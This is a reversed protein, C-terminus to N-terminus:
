LTLPLSNLKSHAQIASALLVEELNIRALKGTITLGPSANIELVCLRGEHRVVDVGAFVAGVARSAELGISCLDPEEDLKLSRKKSGTGSSVPNNNVARREIIAIVINNAVLVRYDVGFTTAAPQIILHQVLPASLPIERIKQLSKLVSGSSIHRTVGRGRSEWAPKLYVPGDYQVFEGGPLLCSTPLQPVGASSLSLATLLKDECVRITSPPNIVTAGLHNAITLATNLFPSVPSTGRPILIDCDLVKDHLTISTLTEKVHVSISDPSEISFDVGLRKAASKLRPSSALLHNEYGLLIIRM